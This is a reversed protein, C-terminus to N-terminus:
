RRAQQAPSRAHRPSCRPAWHPLHTQGNTNVERALADFNRTALPPYIVLSQSHWLAVVVSRVVEAVVVVVASSRPQRGGRVAVVLAFHPRLSPHSFTLAVLSLSQCGFGECSDGKNAVPFVSCTQTTIMFHPMVILGLSSTVVFPLLLLFLNLRPLAGDTAV